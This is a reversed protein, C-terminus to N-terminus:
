KGAFKMVAEAHSHVHLKEYIRQIYTRVTGLSIGLDSAIQKYTYGKSLAQLVEVERASLTETEARSKAQAVAQAHLTQVVKRAINGSMPSGGAHVERIAELIKAPRSSKVLYGFAGASLANFVQEGEEFVTLMIIKLGPMKQRLKSVCEIGNIGPLNIDMLVVHPNVKPLGALAAEANPYVSACQFGPQASLYRELTGRLKADDEVISVNIMVEALLIAQPTAVVAGLTPHTPANYSMIGCSWVLAVIVRM